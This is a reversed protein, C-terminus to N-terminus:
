SPLFSRLKKVARHLRVSIVNASLGTIEAIEAPALEDIYRMVLLDRDEPELRKLLAVVLKEDIAAGPPRVREDGPDFGEERLQELSVTTKKMAANIILNHATRYLFGRMHRITGGKAIYEWTRLFTEQMIDMGHERDSTRFYCHRFLEDAYADYARLFEGSSSPSPQNQVRSFRM